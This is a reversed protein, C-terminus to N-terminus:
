RRWLWLRQRGNQPNTVIVVNSEERRRERVTPHRSRAAKVNGRANRQEVAVACRKGTKV